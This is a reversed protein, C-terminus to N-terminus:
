RLAITPAREGLAWSVDVLIGTGVVVEGGDWGTAWSIRDLGLVVSGGPKVQFTVTASAGMKRILDTDVRSPLSKYREQTGALVFSGKATSVDGAMGWIVGAFEVDFGNLQPTCTIRLWDRVARQACDVRWESFLARGGEWPATKVGLDAATAWEEEKPEDSPQTPWVYAKMKAAADSESSAGSSAGASGSATPAASAAGSAPPTQAVAEPAEVSSSVAGAVLAFIALAAAGGQHERRKM